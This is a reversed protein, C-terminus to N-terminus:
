RQEVAVAREQGDPGVELVRYGPRLFLTYSGAPLPSSLDRDGATLTLMAAGGIELTADRLLYTTGDDSTTRLPLRVNASLDPEAFPDADFLERSCGAPLASSILLALALARRM